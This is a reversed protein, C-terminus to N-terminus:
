SIWAFLMKKYFLKFEGALVMVQVADSDEKMIVNYEYKFSYGIGYYEKTQLGPELYISKKEEDILIIPLSGLKNQFRIAEVIILLTFNTLLVAITIVIIKFIKRM